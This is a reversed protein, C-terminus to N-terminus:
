SEKKEKHIAEYKLIKIHILSKLFASFEWRFLCYQWFIVTMDSKGMKQKKPRQCNWFVLNGTWSQFYNAIEQMKLLIERNNFQNKRILM